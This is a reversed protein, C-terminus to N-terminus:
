SYVQPDHREMFIHPKALPEFQYQQYLAHADSTALFWRRLNQLQPHNNVCDMLWKSLGQGRYAEIIFVDGLYAITAYDSIVRAFGIQQEGHYLSFCLANHLSRELTERPIGKSWYAQESLFQYVLEFDVDSFEDSIWFEDKHWKM